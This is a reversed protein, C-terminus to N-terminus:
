LPPILAKILPELPNPPLSYPSHVPGFYTMHLYSFVMQFGTNQLILMLIYILIEGSGGKNLCVCQIENCSVCGM